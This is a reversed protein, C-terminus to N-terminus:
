IEPILHFVKSKLGCPKRQKLLSGDFKGSFAFTKNLDANIGDIGCEVRSTTFYREDLRFIIM